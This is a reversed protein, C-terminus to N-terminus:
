ESKRETKRTYTEAIQRAIQVLESIPWEWAKFIWLMARKCTHFLAAM